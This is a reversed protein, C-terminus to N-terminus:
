GIMVSMEFVPKDLLGRHKKYSYREDTAFYFQPYEAKLKEYEAFQERTVLDAAQNLLEDPADIAAIYDTTNQLKTAVSGDQVAVPCEPKRKNMEYQAIRLKARYFGIMRSKAHKTNALRVTDIERSLEQIDLKKVKTIYQGLVRQERRAQNVAAIIKADSWDIGMGGRVAKVLSKARKRKGDTGLLGGIFLKVDEWTTETGEVPSLSPPADEACVTLLDDTSAVTDDDDRLVWEPEHECISDWETRDIQKSSFVHDHNIIGGGKSEKILLLPDCNKELENDQAYITAHVDQVPTAFVKIFQYINAVNGGSKGADEHKIFYKHNLRATATEVTRLSLGTLTCLQRRSLQAIGDHAHDILALLVKHESKRLDFNRSAHALVAHVVDNPNEVRRAESPAPAKPAFVLPERPKIPMNLEARAAKIASATDGHHELIKMVDFAARITGFLSCASNLAKVVIGYVASPILLLSGDGTMRHVGCPCHYLKRSHGRKAGNRDLVDLVNVRRNYEAIPNDDDAFSQYEFPPTVRQVPKQADTEAYTVIIGALADQANNVTHPTGQWHKGTLAFFRDHGYIEVGRVTQPNHLLGAQIITKVGRGSLSVETYSNLMGIITQARTDLIGDNLCDDLDIGVFPDDRTFKYGIGHFRKRNSKWAAIADTYSLWIASDNEDHAKGTEPHCPLKKRKGKSDAKDLTYVLWQNRQKLEVPIFPFADLTDDSTTNTRSVISTSGNVVAHNQTM